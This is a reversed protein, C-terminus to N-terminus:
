SSIVSTNRIYTQLTELSDLASGTIINDYVTYLRKELVTTTFASNTLNSVDLGLSALDATTIRGGTLGNYNATDALAAGQTPTKAELLQIRAVTAALDNLEAVTNVQDMSKRGVVDSLLKVYAGADASNLMGVITDQFIASGNGLGINVYDAKLPDYSSLDLDKNGDAETLIANYSLVMSKIEADTLSQHQAGTPWSKVADRYALLYNGDASIADNLSGGKALVVAKYDDLTPASNILDNAAYDNIRYSSVIAQIKQVSALASGDDASDASDLSAQIGALNNVTVGTLGLLALGSVWDSDSSYGLNSGTQGTGSGAGLALLNEAAKELAQLETATDVASAASRGLADNVLALLASDTNSLPSDTANSHTIGLSKYDALTPNNTDDPVYKENYSTTTGAKKLVRYYADVMSQVEAKTLGSGSAQKDLSSNLTTLLTVGPPLSVSDLAVRNADSTDALSKYAKIGLNSYDSLGPAAQTKTAATDDNYSRMAQLSLVAQVEAFTDVAEGNALNASNGLSILLNALDANIGSVLTSSIAGTAGSGKLGLASLDTASVKAGSQRAALQMLHVAGDAMAKLKSVNDVATVPLEELASNLLALTKGSSAVTIGVNAYDAASPQPNTSDQAARGNAKALIIAYSKQLNDALKQVEASTGLVSKDLGSVLRNLADLMNAETVDSGVTPLTVGAAVYTAKTPATTNSGAIGGSKAYNKILDLAASQASPTPEAVSGGTGAMAGLLLVGAGVGALGWPSDFQELYSPAPSKLSVVASKDPVLGEGAQLRTGSQNNSAFQNTDYAMSEGSQSVGQLLAGNAQFYGQIVIDPMDSDGEPLAILLDGGAKKMQLKTPSSLTLANMLQYRTGDAASLVLSQGKAGDGSRVPRVAKTQGTQIVKVIFKEEM